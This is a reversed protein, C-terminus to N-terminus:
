FRLKAKISSKGMYILDAASLKAFMYAFYRIDRKNHTNYNFQSLFVPLLLYKEDYSLEIKTLINKLTAQQLDM